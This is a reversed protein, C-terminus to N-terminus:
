IVSVTHARVGDLYLKASVALFAPIQHGEILCVVPSIRPCAKLSLIVPLIDLVGYRFYKRSVALICEFDGAVGSRPKNNRIRM